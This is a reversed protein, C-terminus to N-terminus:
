IKKISKLHVSAVLEIEDENPYLSTLEAEAYGDHIISDFEIIYFDRENVHSMTEKDTEAYITLNSENDSLTLWYRVLGEGGLIDCSKLKLHLDNIIGKKLEINFRKSFSDILSKRVIPNVGNITYKNQISDRFQKIKTEKKKNIENNIEVQNNFLGFLGLSLLVICTIFLSQKM